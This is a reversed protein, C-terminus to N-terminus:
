FPYVNFKLTDCVVLTTDWYGWPSNEDDEWIELPGSPVNDYTTAQGIDVSREPLFGNGPYTASYIKVKITVGTNNYIKAFGTNDRECVPPKKCAIVGIIMLAVAMILMNLISKRNM